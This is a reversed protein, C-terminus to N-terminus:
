FCSPPNEDDVTRLCWKSCGPACNMRHGHTYRLTAPIRGTPDNNSSPAMSNNGSAEPFRRVVVRQGPDRAVDPPGREAPAMALRNGGEGSSPAFNQGGVVIQALPSARLAISHREAASEALGEGAMAYQQFLGLGEAGARRFEGGQEGPATADPALLEVGELTEVGACAAVPARGRHPMHMPDLALRFRRRCPLRFRLAPHVYRCGRIM